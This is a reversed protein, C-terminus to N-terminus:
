SQGATAHVGFTGQTDQVLLDKLDQLNHPSAAASLVEQELVDWLYWPFKHGSCCRSSKMSRLGNRFLAACILANDQQFLGRGDFAM